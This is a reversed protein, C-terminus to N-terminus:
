KAKKPDTKSPAAKPEKEPTEAKAPPADLLKKLRENEAKLVEIDRQLAEIKKANHPIVAAADVIERNYGLLLKAEAEDLTEISGGKLLTRKEGNPGPKLDFSRQGRNIVVINDPM